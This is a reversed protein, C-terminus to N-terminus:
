YYDNISYRIAYKKVETKKGCNSCNGNMPIIASKMACQVCTKNLLHCNQCGKQQQVFTCAACLAANLNETSSSTMDCQDTESPQRIYNANIYEAGIQTTDVDVLKVRTHDVLFSSFGCISFLFEFRNTKCFNIIRQSCYPCFTCPLINKYRNKNRNEIRHGERRSFTHRCEQQQLSEFEEWFGGQLHFVFLKLVFHTNHTKM